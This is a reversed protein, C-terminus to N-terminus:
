RWAAIPSIWREVPTTTTNNTAGDIVTVGGANSVYIQNTNPNVAVAQPGGGSFVKVTTRRQENGRRDGDRYQPDQEGLAMPSM